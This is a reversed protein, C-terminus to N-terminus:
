SRGAMNAGFQQQYGQENGQIIFDVAIKASEEVLYLCKRSRDKSNWQAFLKTLERCNTSGFEQEFRRPIQNFFRYLGPNGNLQKIREERSELALPNKRGHVMGVAMMLGTLCGCTNGSLGMGGGFGSALAVLERPLDSFNLDHVALLVSESCNLGSKFYQGALQKAKEGLEEKKLHDM